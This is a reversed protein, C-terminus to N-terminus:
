EGGGSRETQPQVDVTPANKGTLDNWFNTFDDGTITGGAFLIGIVLIGLGVAATVVMVTVTNVILELWRALARVISMGARAALTKM